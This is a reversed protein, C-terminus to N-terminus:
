RTSDYTNNRYIARPATNIPRQNNENQNDSRQIGESSMSSNSSETIYDRIDYRCTPCHVNSAFWTDICSKHFSHTCHIVKRIIDSTQFDEQCIACTDNESPNIIHEIRTSSNIQQETPRVTVTQELFNSLTTPHFIQSLLSSTITDVGQIGSYLPITTFTSLPINTTRIQIDPEQRLRIDGEQHQVQQEQRISTESHTQQSYINENYIPFQQTLPVRTYFQQERRQSSQQTQQIQHQQQIRQQYERFGRAYPSIHTIGSYVYDLLDRVNGFREPNYLIDPLYNHLDDFLQIGYNQQYSSM